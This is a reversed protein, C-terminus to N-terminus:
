PADSAISGYELLPVKQTYDYYLIGKSSWNNGYKEVYITLQVTFQESWTPVPPRQAARVTVGNGRGALSALCLCCVLVSLSLMTLKHWLM